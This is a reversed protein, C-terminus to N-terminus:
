YLNVKDGLVFLLALRCAQLQMAFLVLLHQQSCMPFWNQAGSQLSKARTSSFNHSIFKM